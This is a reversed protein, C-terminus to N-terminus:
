KLLFHFLTRQYKVLTNVHIFQVLKQPIIDIFAPIFINPVLPTYSSEFSRFCRCMRLLNSVSYEHVRLFSSYLSNSSDWRKRFSLIYLVILTIITYPPLLCCSVMSLYSAEGGVAASSNTIKVEVISM